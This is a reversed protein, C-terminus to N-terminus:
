GDAVAGEGRDGLCRRKHCARGDVGVSHVMLGRRRRGTPNLTRGLSAANRAAAGV